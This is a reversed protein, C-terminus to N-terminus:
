LCPKEFERYVSLPFRISCLRERMSSVLPHSKACLKAPSAAQRNYLPVSRFPVTRETKRFVYRVSRETKIQSFPFKKKRAVTCQSYSCTYVLVHIYMSMLFSTKPNPQLPSLSCLILNQLGTVVVLLPTCVNYM